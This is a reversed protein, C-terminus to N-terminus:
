DIGLAGKLHEGKRLETWLIENDINQCTINQFVDARIMGADILVKVPNGGAIITDVHDLCYQKIEKLISIYADPDVMSPKESDTYETKIGDEGWLSGCILEKTEKDQDLNSYTEKFNDICANYQKTNDVEFAGYAKIAYNAILDASLLVISVVIVFKITNM